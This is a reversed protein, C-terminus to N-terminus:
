MRVGLGVVLDRNSEAEFALRLDVELELDVVGAVVELLLEDESVPFFSLFVGDCFEIFFSLSNSGLLSFYQKGPRNM